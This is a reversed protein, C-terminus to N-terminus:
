GSLMSSVDTFGNDIDALIDLKILGLIALKIVEIVIIDKIINVSSFTIDNEVRSGIEDAKAVELTLGKVGFYGM